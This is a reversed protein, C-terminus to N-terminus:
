TTAPETMSIAHLYTWTNTMQCEEKIDTIYVSGHPGLFSYFLGLRQRPKIGYAM